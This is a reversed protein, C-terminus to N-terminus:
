SACRHSPPGVALNVLDAAGPPDPQAVPALVESMESWARLRRTAPSIRALDVEPKAAHCRDVVGIAAAQPHELPTAHRETVEVRAPGPSRHGQVQAITPERAPVTDLAYAVGLALVTATAASAIVSM